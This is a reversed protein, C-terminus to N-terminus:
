RFLQGIIVSRIGLGEHMYSALSLIDRVIHADDRSSIDNEGIQLFCVDPTASFELLDSSRALQSIRLGGRGHVTIMYNEINLNLNSARPHSRMYHRLRSIFSHGVLAAHLPATDRYHSM